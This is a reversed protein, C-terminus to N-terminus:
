TVLLPNVAIHVAFIFTPDPGVLVGVVFGVLVGVGVLMGVEGDHLQVAFIVGSGGVATFTPPVRDNVVATLLIVAPQETCFTLKTEDFVETAVTEGAESVLPAGYIVVAVPTDEAPLGVTMDDCPIIFSPPTPHESESLKDTRPGVDTGAVGSGVSGMPQLQPSQIAPAQPAPAQSVSWLCSVLVQAGAPQLGYTVLHKSSELQTGFVGTGVCPGFQLTFTFKLGPDTPTPCFETAVAWTVADPPLTSRTFKEIVPSAVNNDVKSM